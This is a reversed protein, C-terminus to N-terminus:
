CGVPAFIFQPNGLFVQRLAQYANRGQRRATDLYSRIKLYFDAGAISRFCGANKTKVKVSRVSQEATNNSFPVNFDKAFLMVSDKYETLRTILAPVKGKKPRGRKCRPPETYPNEEFAKKMILDYRSSFSELYAKEFGNIGEQLLKEKEEKMELLFASFDRNWTQGLHNEAVGVLERLIHVACVSHRVNEVKWYPKWCDHVAVSGSKMAGIVGNSDMGDKGRKKDATLYTYDANSSSHVWQTTGEIRTGTEDFNVVSSESLRKKIMKLVDAIGSTCVELKNVVTGASLPIGFVSGLTKHIRGCGNGANNLAVIFASLSPGYQVYSNLGELFEGKPMGGHLACANMRIIEHRETETKIIIDVRHGAEVVCGVSGKCGNFHPCSLCKAPYHQVIKDIKPPVALNPGKHGKQGGPTKGGPKRLSKPKPKTLGDSSPPKSSNHSNRNLQEQLEEVQATFNCINENLKIITAQLFENQQQLIKILESDTM